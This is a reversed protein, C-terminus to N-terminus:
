RACEHLENRDSDWDSFRKDGSVRHAREHLQRAADSQEGPRNRNRPWAGYQQGTGRQSPCDHHRPCDVVKIHATLFDRIGIGHIRINGVNNKTSLPNNVLHIGIDGGVQSSTLTGGDIEIDSANGLSRIGFKCTDGRIKHITAIQVLQGAHGGDIYLCSGQTFNVMSSRDLFAGDVEGLLAMGGFAQGIADEFALGYTSFGSITSTGSTLDGLQVGWVRSGVVFALRM